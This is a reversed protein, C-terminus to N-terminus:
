YPASKLSEVSAVLDRITYPKSLFGQVAFQDGMARSDGEAHGSSLIVPWELGRERIARLVQEGDIGPMSWDLVVAQIDHGQDLMELAQEGGAAVLVEYGAMELARQAIECISPEDDVVLVLGDGRNEIAPQPDLLDSIAPEACVPLTVRFSTGKGVESEVSVTGGHEELIRHCIALGLGRGNAKTSFFPDFIRAQQEPTMGTGDDRVTLLLHEGDADLATEVWVNGGSQCAQAANTLLNLVLQRLATAQGSVTPLTEALDLHLRVQHNLSTGLMSYTERVLCNLDIPIAPSEGDSGAYALVQGVLDSARRGTNLIGELLSQGAPNGKLELRLLEAYGLMGGLMNKFDHAVGSAIMGISEIRQSQQLAVETRELQRRAVRLEIENMVLTALHTLTASEAPSFGRPQPGFACLTGIRHGEPCSLPVGAYFRIGPAGSVLSNNRTEPHTAANEIHRVKQGTMVLTSCFGAERNVESVEVGHASKFWVRNRDVLSVCSHPVQLMEAVLGTIIDFTSEKPTDLIEYSHLADVRQRDDIPQM